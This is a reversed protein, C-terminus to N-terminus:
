EGLSWNKQTPRKKKAEDRNLNKHNVQNGAFVESIIAIILWQLKSKPVLILNKSILIYIGDISM